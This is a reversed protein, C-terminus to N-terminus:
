ARASVATADRLARWVAEPTCPVDLHGVGLPALADLVANHVAAPAAIMGIEGVGKAGLPNRPSPTSVWWTEIAPVEAASPVLYEALSTALPTGDEAHAARESLAQAIGQVSAGVVQGGASVPDVVRGCDTVAVHRVPTVRGTERDIEVVSLHAASPYAADPQDFVCNAALPEGVERARSAVDALSLRRAPVGRVILAGDHFVVDDVAAELVQAAVRRAREAVVEAAQRAATGALQTSRSGMTGDGAPTHDTDAEVVEIHDRGAPLVEGVLTALMVDHRQGASATASRVEVVGAATIEVSAAQRRAFWATSDVVVAVGIGLLTTDAQARRARQQARLADYGARELLVDLLRAYDGSDYHLGTPTTYPYEGAGVLNRRRVVVPDVGIAAALADMSRELLATAEARGPGRYAGTPALNTMVSRATFDVAPIRYPGCAMLRTKGPEVAGTTPYAGADCLEEARLGVVRGDPRAHLEGRLVVGRGQMGALNTSRDEVFQVPRGLRLAAAATVVHDAVGGTAKGGFGGGVHPAIVRIREPAVELSRALQVRAPHPVQTSLWVVLRDGDPVALVAHGEMPAVSLRPIRLETRIVVAAAEFWGDIAADRPWELAVNSGHAPFLLPAGSAVAREVDTVVELPEYDVVVLEAADLAAALSEAVVAVVREGAYRVVGTALPPQALVEPILQIEWIPLMPLDAATFVGAVGPAVSAGTTDVGVIRAHAVPSRVFVLHLRDAVALDAVFRAAGTLLGDYGVEPADVTM